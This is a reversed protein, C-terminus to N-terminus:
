LILPSVDFSMTTGFANEFGSGSGSVLSLASLNPSLLVGVLVLLVAFVFRTRMLHLAGESIGVGQGNQRAPDDASAFRLIIPM